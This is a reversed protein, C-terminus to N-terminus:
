GASDQSEVPVRAHKIFAALLDPRRHLRDFEGILVRRLEMTDEPAFNALRAHKAHQWYMRTPIPRRPM